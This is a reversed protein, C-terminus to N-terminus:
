RGMCGTCRTATPDFELRRVEIDDGCIFCEGYEGSEIRRLAADIRVLRDKRRRATEQAMQQSQLADVRSVRGVSQQDLEVTKTADKSSEELEQLEAKLSLLTQKYQNLQGQDMPHHYSPNPRTYLPKTLSLRLQQYVREGVGRGSM